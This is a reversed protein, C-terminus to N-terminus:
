SNFRRMAADIGDGVYCLVADSGQEIMKQATDSEDSRFPSLVFEFMRQTKEDRTEELLPHPTDIGCRLRPFENSLLHYIISAIGRHGGDSGKARLRIEGLPLNVDDSVVLLNSLTIGYRLVIDRVAIGSQNMYTTPKALGIEARDYKGLGIFYEGRGARLRIQLKRSLTDIVLFGVNHRTHEYETGPNGLGIVM